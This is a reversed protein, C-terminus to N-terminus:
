IVNYVLKSYLVVGMGQVGRGSCGGTIFVWSMRSINDNERERERERYIYIYINFEYIYIYIHVYM